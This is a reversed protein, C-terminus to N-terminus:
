TMEALHIYGDWRPHFYEEEVRALAEHVWAKRIASSEEFYKLKATIREIAAMAPHSFDHKIPARYLALELSKFHRYSALSWVHDASDIDRQHDCFLCGAPTRCDPQTAERPAGTIRQPQVKICLGPGPPLLAPDNKAHFRSIEVMAQQLNPEQYHRILVEKTHQFQEATFELDGSRRLMWNVRTKRLKQPGFYTVGAKKCYHRMSIFTDKQSHVDRAFPFLLGDTDNPFCSTRWKLYREFVERYESFIEFTVEGQRRGKFIRHVKYGDHYSVYRFQGMNLKAAQALNIGTQSIFVLMEAAIRLNPMFRRNSPSGVDLTRGTRLQIKAPLKGQMVEATLGDCLDLLFNGFCFSQELNQKDASPSISRQLRKPRRLRVKFLLGVERELVEDLISAVLGAYCYASMQNIDNVVKTRYLLYDTWALFDTAITEQTFPQRTGDAWSFFIRIAFIRDLASRQSGGGTLRGVIVEHIKKVLVIRDVIPEGLNGKNIKEAVQDIRTGAGGLYLLARLDLPTQNKGLTVMPFTLDPIRLDLM